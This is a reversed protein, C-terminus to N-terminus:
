WVVIDSEFAEEFEQIEKEIEKPMSPDNEEYAMEILLNIDDYSAYLEHIIKVMDQLSKLEKM